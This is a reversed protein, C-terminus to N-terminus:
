QYKKLLFMEFTWATYFIFGDGLRERFYRSRNKKKFRWFHTQVGKEITSSGKETAKYGLITARNIPDVTRTKRCQSCKCLYKQYFYLIVELTTWYRSTSRFRTGFISKLWLWPLRNYRSFRGRFTKVRSGKQIDFVYVRKLPLIWLWWTRWTYRVLSGLWCFNIWPFQSHSCCYDQLVLKSYIPPIFYM